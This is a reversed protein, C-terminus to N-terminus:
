ENQERAEQALADLLSVKALDLYARAKVLAHSAKLKRVKVREEQYADVDWTARDVQDMLQVLTM